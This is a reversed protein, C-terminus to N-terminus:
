RSLRIFPSTTTCSKSDAAGPALVTSNLWGLKEPLVLGNRNDCAGPDIEGFMELTLLSVASALPLERWTLQCNLSIAAPSQSRRTPCPEPVGLGCTSKRRGIEKRMSMRGTPWVM